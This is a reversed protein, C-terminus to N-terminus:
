ISPTSGAKHIFEAKIIKCVHGLITIQAEAGGLSDCFPYLTWLSNLTCLLPLLFVYKV